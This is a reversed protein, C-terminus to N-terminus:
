RAPVRGDDILSMLVPSMEAAGYPSQRKVGPFPQGGREAELLRDFERGIDAMEGAGFAQKLMLFGFTQYYTVQEVTNM